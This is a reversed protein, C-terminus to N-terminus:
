IGYEKKIAKLADEIVFLGAIKQNIAIFIVTAGHEKLEEAKTNMEMCDVSNETMFNFNGILIKKNEVEGM